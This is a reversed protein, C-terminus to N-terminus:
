QRVARKKAPASKRKAKEASAAASVVAYPLQHRKDGVTVVVCREIEGQGVLYPRIKAVFTVSKGLSFDAERSIVGAKENVLPDTFEISVAQKGSYGSINVLFCLGDFAILGQTQAGTQPQAGDPLTLVVCQDPYLGLLAYKGGPEQRIEDAVFLRVQKKRSAKARPKPATTEQM